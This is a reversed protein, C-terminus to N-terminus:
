LKLDWGSLGELLRYNTLDLHLPTISIFREHVARFDSEAGGWWKSEGGGIWFYERGNPDHARTLSGVYARRGLSTVRVGAIEDPAVAPLNVNLLTEAPFDDRELLQRLLAVLVNDWAALSDADKGTYSVAIAPIGLITAEMAAAVTGSYLVDDGLNAGHNIGSLVFDPREELLEGVALMVCDTPTGDVVRVADSASRVRLPSHLTLSHSTASQERDPAVVTVDGIQAAARALTQIGGALYGDDNTVLIRM